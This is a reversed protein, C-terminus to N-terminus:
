PTRVRKLLSLAMVVLLGVGVILVSWLVVLRVPTKKPLPEFAADGGLVRTNGAYGEGILEVRDKESVDALLGDCAVPTALEARRSGFALTFPGSGQALFRLRAPRYGLELVPAQYLEANKPLEVRWFRDATADFRAPPSERRETDTAVSYAEGTWRDRWPSKQDPRSQLTIRLSSNEQPLRLRAYRVPALRAADFLLVDSESPAVPDAMFWLPEIDSAASVREAIVANLQLPPGGDAREIRLYKYRRQPLEIRERRLEQAGRTAKLLTSAAIVVEWRDLDESAEIRVKAESAGDPSDWDFQIARLHEEIAEADIIHTRSDTAVTRQGGAENVNVQTGDTTQVEIRAGDNSSRKAARLEFVSLSQETVVPTSTEPAACLAHPVPMGEANFVRLDGLDMRTVTQYVEDPLAAEILPRDSSADIAVGQAYDNLNPPAAAVSTAVLLALLVIRRFKVTM